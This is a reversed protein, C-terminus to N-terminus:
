PLGDLGFYDRLASVFEKVMADLEAVDIKEVGPIPIPPVNAATVSAKYLRDAMEFLHSPLVLRMEEVLLNLEAMFPYTGALEGFVLKVLQEPNNLDAGSTGLQSLVERIDQGPQLTSLPKLARGVDLREMRLRAIASLFRTVVDRMLAAEQRRTEAIEQRMFASRSTVFSASAGVAAGLLTAGGTILADM